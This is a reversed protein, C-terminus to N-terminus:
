IDSLELKVFIKSICKRSQKMYKEKETKKRFAMQM